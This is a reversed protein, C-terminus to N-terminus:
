SKTTAMYLRGLWSSHTLMKDYFSQSSKYAKKIKDPM